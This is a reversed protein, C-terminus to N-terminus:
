KYFAFVINSRAFRTVYAVIFPKLKVLIKDTTFKAHLAIIYENINDTGNQVIVLILTTKIFDNNDAIVIIM